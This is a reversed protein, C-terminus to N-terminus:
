AKPFCLCLATDEGEGVAWRLILYDDMCYWMLETM